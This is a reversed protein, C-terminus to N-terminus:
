FLTWTLRSGGGTRSWLSPLLVQFSSFLLSIYPEMCPNRSYSCQPSLSFGLSSVSLACPRVSCLAQCLVLRCYSSAISLIPNSYMHLVVVVTHVTFCALDNILLWEVPRPFHPFSYMYGLVATCGSVQVTSKGQIWDPGGKQVSLWWAWLLWNWNMGVMMEIKSM